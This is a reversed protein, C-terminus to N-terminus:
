WSLITDILDVHTPLDAKVKDVGVMNIADKLLKVQKASIAVPRTSGPTVFARMIGLAAVTQQAAKVNM